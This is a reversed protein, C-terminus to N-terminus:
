KVTDIEEKTLNYLPYILKDIENVLNDIDENKQRADRKLELLIKVLKVIDDHTKKNNKDSLTKFPLPIDLLYTNRKYHTDFCCDLQGQYPQSPFQQM